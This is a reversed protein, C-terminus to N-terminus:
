TIEQRSETSKRGSAGGCRQPADVPETNKVALLQRYPQQHQAQLGATKRTIVGAAEKGHGVHRRVVSRAPSVPVRADTVRVARADGPGLARQRSTGRNADLGTRQHRRRLDKLDSSLGAQRLGKVPGGHRARSQLQSATLRWFRM